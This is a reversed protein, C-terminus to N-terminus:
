LLGREVGARDMMALTTEVPQESESFPGPKWRRLSDFTWLGMPCSLGRLADQNDPDLEYGKLVLLLDPPAAQLRPIVVERLTRNFSATILRDHKLDVFRDLARRVASARLTAYAFPAVEWGLRQFAREISGAISGYGPAVM